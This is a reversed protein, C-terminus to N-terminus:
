PSSSYAPSRMGGAPRSASGLTPLYASRFDINGNSISVTHKPTRPLHVAPATHQWELLPTVLVSSFCTCGRCSSTISLSTIKHDFGPSVTNVGNMPTPDSTDSPPPRIAPFADAYLELRGVVPLGYFFRSACDLRISLGFIHPEESGGHRYPHRDAEGEESEEYKPQVTAARGPNM